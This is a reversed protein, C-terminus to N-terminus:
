DYIYGKHHIKKAELYAAHAQQPTDFMGLNVEVGDVYIRAQYKGQYCTRVGRFSSKNGIRANTINHSNIQNTADRLNDIRNNKKNQDKHDIQNNPFNGYIYMWALRHAYFDRDLLRIRIYGKASPSGAVTFKYMTNWMKFDRNRKFHKEPREKWTFVGTEHNYNLCEKLYEQTLM